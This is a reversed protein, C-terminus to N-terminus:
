RGDRRSQLRTWLRRWQPRHSLADFEAHKEFPVGFRGCRRCGVRKGCDAVWCRADTNWAMAIRELHLNQSGKLLIIEDKRATAKIHEYVKEPQLIELFRGEARDAESAGSRHATEGVFIVQEAVASAARYAARYRRRSAGAYDSIHGLVIRKAPAEAKAIAQFALDLTENPAKATDLIFTPGGEIPYLEWRNVLGGFTAAPEAIKEPPVGLEIAAAAAAVASLWFHEATLRTKLVIRGGPSAIEVTLGEPVSASASLVRYDATDSWGFTVVRARTRSAMGMAFEDDANLLVLGGPQVAAVLAGKEDAVAQRSRFQSYHETGIRTVIVVDPDLMEAMPRMDGKHEVALEAVVYKEARSHQRLTRILAPLTNEPCQGLVAGHASLMQALLATTTSKASSGTVGIFTADSRNRKLVALRRHLASKSRGRIRKVWRRIPSGKKLSLAGTLRAALM